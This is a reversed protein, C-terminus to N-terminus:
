LNFLTPPLYQADTLLRLVGLMAMMLLSAIAAWRTNRSDIALVTLSLAVAVGWAITGVRQMTRAAADPVFFLAAVAAVTLLWGIGRVWPVLGPSSKTLGAYRTTALLLPGAGLMFLALPGSVGLDSLQSVEPLSYVHGNSGLCALWACFAAAAMGVPGSAPDILRRALSLGAMLLLVGYVLRFYIRAAAEGRAEAAEDHLRVHLGGAINGEIEIYLTQEGSLGKPLPLDFNSPWPPLGANAPRFFTDQAVITGDPTRLRIVDVPVRVVDLRWRESPGPPLTTRVRLWIAQDYRAHFSTGPTLLPTFGPHARGSVIDALPTGRPTEMVALDFSLPGQGEAAAAPGLGALLTLLLAVIISMTRMTRVRGREKHDLTGAGPRGIRVM